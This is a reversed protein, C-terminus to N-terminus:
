HSLNYLTRNRSTFTMYAVQGVRCRGISRLVIFDRRGTVYREICDGLGPRGNAASM